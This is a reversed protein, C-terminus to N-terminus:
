LEATFAIFDVGGTGFIAQPRFATQGSAVTGDLRTGVLTPSNLTLATFAYNYTTLDTANIGAGYEIATPSVRMSVPFNVLYRSGTTSSAFGLAYTGSQTSNRFYYRQCAALEGQITGTATQFATATSGSELQVGWIQFTSNNIGISSARTAHDSGASLWLNAEIYSSNADTGITKGSISPVAVTKSYRTWSTSTTISGLPTSVFASPSGGSGFVQTIELGISPTGSSAKAWFSFTVTQNAFTRVDEIRQGLINYASTASQGSIAMQAFNKAEYGAVPATGPTFTQASYTNTGTSFEYRWRDFGYAAASATTFNRQNITFDGNIIKNKGAAYDEKYRLGTSTSSDAVIIEGNAGATIVGLTNDATGVLIDGKANINSISPTTLVPSTLTKNTLTQGTTLDATVATDIAVTPVPGTPNTISIGTGATLATIDGTAGIWASGDYVELTNTDQLYSVMGEALVGSLASTRAASSAFVMVTQQMLYTNVQAATLVDGTAFLKYGAGAM